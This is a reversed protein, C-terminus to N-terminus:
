TLSVLIFLCWSLFSIGANTTATSHKATRSEDIAIACVCFCDVVASESNGLDNLAADLAGAM